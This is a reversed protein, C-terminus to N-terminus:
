SRNNAPDTEVDYAKIAVAICAWLAPVSLLAALAASIVFPLHLMKSVSWVTAAVIAVVESDVFLTFSLIAAISALTIV